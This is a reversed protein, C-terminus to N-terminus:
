GVIDRSVLIEVAEKAFAPFHMQGQLDVNRYQDPFDWFRGWGTYGIVLAKQPIRGQKKEYEFIDEASIVYDAHAKQSVDIVCAQAILNTLPIKSVDIGGPVCHSPADIHTGVGAHLTIKQVRFMEDYDKKISLCFGCSGNWTPAKPSLPHTLDIIDYLDLLM